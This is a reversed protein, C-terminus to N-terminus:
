PTKTLELWDITLYLNFANTGGKAADLTVIIGENQELRIPEVGQAIPNYDIIVDQSGDNATTATALVIYSGTAFPDTDQTKTGGAAATASNSERFATLVSDVYDGNIKQNDASRLISATNTDDTATFTRAVFCSVRVEASNDNGTQLGEVEIRNIQCIAGTTTGWRFEWLAGAAQSANTVFRRAQRFSARKYGLPYPTQGKSLSM